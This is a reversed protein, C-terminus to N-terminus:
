ALQSRDRLLALAGLVIALGAIGPVLLGWRSEAPGVLNVLVFLGVVGLTAAAPHPLWRALALGFAGGCAVTAPAFVVEIVSPTSGGKSMFVIVAIAM